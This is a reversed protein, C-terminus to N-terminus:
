GQKGLHCSIRAHKWKRETSTTIVNPLSIRHSFPRQQSCIIRDASQFVDVWVVFGHANINQYNLKMNSTHSTRQTAPSTNVRLFVLSHRKYWFIPTWWTFFPYFCFFAPLFLLDQLTTTLPWLLLVHVRRRPKNVMEASRILIIHKKWTSPMNLQFRVTVTDEDGLFVFDPSLFFIFKRRFYWKCHGQHKFKNVGTSPLRNNFYLKDTAFESQNNHM